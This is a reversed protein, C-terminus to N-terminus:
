SYPEDGCVRPVHVGQALGQVIDRNMGACAPFMDLVPRVNGVM